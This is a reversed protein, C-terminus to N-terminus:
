ATDARASITAAAGAAAVVTAAMGAAAVVRAAMRAAAVVRAVRAAMRGAERIVYGIDRGVANVGTIFGSGFLNRREAEAEPGVGVRRNAEAEPGVWGVRGLLRRAFLM